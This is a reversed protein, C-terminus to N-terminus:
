FIMIEMCRRSNIGAGATLFWRDYRIFLVISRSMRRWNLVIRWYRRSIIVSAAWIFRGIVSRTWRNGMLCPDTVRATARHTIRVPGLGYSEPLGLEAPGAYGSAGNAGHIDGTLSGDSIRVKGRPDALNTPPIHLSMAHERPKWPSSIITVLKVLFKIVVLKLRDEYPIPEVGQCGGLLIMTSTIQWGLRPSFDVYVVDEGHSM